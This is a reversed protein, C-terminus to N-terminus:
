GTSVIAGLLLNYSVLQEEVPLLVFLSSKESLLKVEPPVSISLPYSSVFPATSKLSIVVNQISGANVTENTLSIQLLPPFSFNGVQTFHVANSSTLTIKSIDVSGRASIREAVDSQDVGSAFKFHTGDIVIGENYTPDFPYWKGNYAVEVWAHPAWEEGSYVFGAVFRSAIGQSRLMALFLHSFENCVGRRIVFVESSPTIGDRYSLDYVINNYTWSSLLAAKKLVNGEGGAVESAKAAIEPTVIVFQSEQTFRSLDGIITELGSEPFSSVQTTLTVRQNQEGPRLDFTLVNNGFEDSEQSFPYNSSFVASQTSSNVFAFSSLSISNPQEGNFAVVWNLEVVANANGVLKPEVDIAFVVGSFLFVFVFLSFFKM